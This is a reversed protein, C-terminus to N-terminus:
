CCSKGGCGVAPPAGDTSSSQSANRKVAAKVRDIDAGQLNFNKNKEIGEDTIGQHLKLPAQASELIAQACGVPWGDIAAMVPVEKASQVFGSLKGGIGALCFDQRIGGPDTGCLGYGTIKMVDAIKEVNVIM